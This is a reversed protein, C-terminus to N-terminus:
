LSECHKTRPPRSCRACQRISSRNCNQVSSRRRDTAGPHCSTMEAHIATKRIDLDQKVRRRVPGVHGRSRALVDARCGIGGASFKAVRILDQLTGEYPKSGNPIQFPSQLETRLRNKEGVILVSKSTSCLVRYHEALSFFQSVFPKPNRLRGNSTTLPSGDESEQQLEVFLCRPKPVLCKGGKINILICDEDHCRVIGLFPGRYLAEGNFYVLRTGHTLSALNQFHADLASKAPEQIKESLVRGLAIFAAAYSSAPVSIAVVVKRDARQAQAVSAGLQVLFKAWLPLKTWEIGDQFRLDFSKAIRAIM